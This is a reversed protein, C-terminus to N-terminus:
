FWTLIQGNTALILGAFAIGAAIMGDMRDLVGGHGPIINSSDKVDFRRKAHSEFLDGVQAIFALCSSILGVIFPAQWDFLNALLLGVLFASFMGGLLGAWTKKPSIRPALKPGGITLGFGYGGTDTAVVSLALWYVLQVGIEETNRLFIFSAIPLSLYLSGIAFFNRGEKSLNLAFLLALFVPAILIAELLELGIIPLWPIFGVFAALIFGSLKFEDLCLKSWEWAMLVGLLSIFINFFPTGFEIAALAPGAIVIASIVRLGFNSPLTKGM